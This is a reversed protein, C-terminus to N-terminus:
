AAASEAIRAARKAAVRVRAEEREEWAYPVLAAQIECLRHVEDATMWDSTAPRIGLLFPDHASDRRQEAGSVLTHLEALLEKKTPKYVPVYSTIRWDDSEEVGDIIRGDEVVVWHWNGGRRGKQRMIALGLPPPTQLARARDPCIFGLDRLVGVLARTKTGKRHGVREIAEELTIDAIVAVAIQGCLRTKPPQVIRERVVCAEM